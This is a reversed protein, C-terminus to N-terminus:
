KGLIINVLVTVDAVSISGDGNVDAVQPQSASTNGSDKGLIINVLATVDAVSISGDGNVDGIITKESMERIEKFDRWYNAAQYAAKCGDPVYLTCNTCNSFTSGSMLPIPETWEVTVSKLNNCNNFAGDGLETLNIPLTVAQLNECSYFSYNGIIELSNPFNVEKLNYCEWFCRDAISTVGEPFTTNMCGAVMKNTATEIIANCNDRSDYVANGEEVAMSELSYCSVFAERGISKVGKPIFISKLNACREFADGIIEMKDSITFSEFACGSFTGHGIEVLNKGGTVTSLNSNNWFSGMLREIGNPIHISKLNCQSFDNGAMYTLTSPLSVEELNECGTFTQSYLAEVGEPIVISKLKKNNFFAVDSIIKVNSPIVTNSCGLILAENQMDIIANCNNPSAYIPNGEEVVISELDPCGWIPTPVEINVLDKNIFMSEMGYCDMLSTPAIVTCTRPIITGGCGAILTNGPTYIVANCNERSDYLPNDKDVIIERLKPCESFIVVNSIHAVSKPITISSLEFSYRFATDNIKIITEPLIIESLNNRFFASEGISIVRYGEVESPVTLTGTASEDIASMGNDESNGVRCTKASESIVSFTLEIGEPSFATFIRGAGDAEEGRLSKHINVVALLDKSYNSSPMPSLLELEFYGDFNGDWGWNIYFLGDEYGNCVFAHKSLDDGGGLIVPRGDAIERYILNIWADASIDSAYVFWVSNDFGFFSKMAYPVNFVMSGSTDLGYDMNVGQGCYRMLRAIDDDTMNGWDFSTSALGDVWLNLSGTTYGDITGTEGGPCRMYNMVQAMATAVCGTLCHEDDVTPCQTNYPAGQGWTTTIFPAINERELARRTGKLPAQRPAKDLNTIVREYYDLWWKVNSPVQDIDFNGHDAYALIERTRDDGSVIVFGENDEANFVYYSQPASSHISSRLRRKQNVQNVSKGQLFAQAKQLAQQQTIPEAMLQCFGFWIAM